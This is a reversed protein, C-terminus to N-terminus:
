TTEEIAGVVVEIAGVIVEIAGVVVFQLGLGMKRNRPENSVTGVM